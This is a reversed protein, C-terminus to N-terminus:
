YSYHNDFCFLSASYQLGGELGQLQSNEVLSLMLLSLLVPDRTHVYQDRWRRSFLIDKQPLRSEIGYAMCDHYSLRRVIMLHARADMVGQAKATSDGDGVGRGTLYACRVIM